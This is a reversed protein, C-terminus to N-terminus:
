KIDVFNVFLIHLVVYANDPASSISLIGEERDWVRICARFRKRRELQTMSSENSSVIGSVTVTSRDTWQRWSRPLVRQQM